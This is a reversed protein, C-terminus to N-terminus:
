VGDKVEAQLVARLVTVPQNVIKAIGDYPM